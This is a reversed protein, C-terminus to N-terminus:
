EKIKGRKIGAPAYWLKNINKNIFKEHYKKFEHFSDHTSTYVFLNLIMSNHNKAMKKYFKYLYQKTSISEKRWMVVINNSNIDEATPNKRYIVDM